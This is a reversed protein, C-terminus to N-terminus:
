RKINEVIKSNPESREKIIVWRAGADSIAIIQHWENPEIMVVMGAKIPIIQDNVELQAEWELVVYYEHYPHKHRVESKPVRTLRGEGIEVPSGNWYGCFLHSNEQKYIQM